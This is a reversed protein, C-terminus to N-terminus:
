EENVKGFFDTPTKGTIDRFVKYFTSRNKFGAMQAITEIKLHRYSDSSLLQQAYFVRHSNRFDTFTTSFDERLCQQIKYVPQQLYEAMKALTFDEERFPQEQTFWQNIHDKLLPNSPISVAPKPLRKYAQDQFLFLGVLALTTLTLGYWQTYQVLNIQFTITDFTFKYNLYAFALMQITFLGLLFQIWKKQNGQLVEKKQVYWWGILGIYGLNLTSRLTLYVAPGWIWNTEIDFFYAPNEIVQTIAEQKEAWPRIIWPIIGILQIAPFLLHLLDSSKWKREADLFTLYAYLSPSILLYIPSFHILLLTAPWAERSGFQYHLTLTFLSTIGLYAMLFLVLPRSPIHKVYLIITFIFILLASYLLM